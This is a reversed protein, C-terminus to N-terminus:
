RGAEAIFQEAPGEARGVVTLNMPLPVLRQVEGSVTATVLGDDRTVSVELDGVLGGGTNDTLLARALAEGAEATGHQGQAARAGDQAAATVQSQAHLYLGWQIIAMFMFVFIPFIIVM